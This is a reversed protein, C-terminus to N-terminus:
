RGDARRKTPSPAPMWPLLIEYKNVRMTPGPTDIAYGQRKLIEDQLSPVVGTVREYSGPIESIAYGLKALM